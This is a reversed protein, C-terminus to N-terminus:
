QEYKVGISVETGKIGKNAFIDNYKINTETSLNDTICYSGGLGISFDSYDGQAEM